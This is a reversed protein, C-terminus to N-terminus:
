FIQWYKSQLAETRSVNLVSVVHELLSVYKGLFSSMLHLFFLLKKACFCNKEINIEGFGETKVKM